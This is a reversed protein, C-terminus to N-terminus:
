GALRSAAGDVPVPRTGATRVGDRSDRVAWLGVALWVAGTLAIGAEDDITAVISDLLTFSAFFLLPAAVVAVVQLLRSGRALRLTITAAGIAMLVAGLLYFVAAAGTSTVEGGTAVIVTIKALWAAGGAIAALATLHLARNM